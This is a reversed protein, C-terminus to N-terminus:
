WHGSPPYRHLEVFFFSARLMCSTSLSRTPALNGSCPIHDGCALTAFVRRSFLDSVGLPPICHSGGPGLWVVSVHSVCPPGRSLWPVRGHTYVLLDWPSRPCRSLMVRCADALPPSPAGMGVCFFPPPIFVSSFLVCLCRCFTPLSHAALFGWAVYLCCPLLLFGRSPYTCVCCCGCGCM